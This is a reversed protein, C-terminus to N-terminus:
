KLGQGEVCEYSKGCAVNKFEDTRGSPWAVVVRDVQDRQGVGRLEDAVQAIGGRRGGEQQAVM